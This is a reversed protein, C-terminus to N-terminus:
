HDDHKAICYSAKLNWLQSRVEQHMLRLQQKEVELTLILEQM